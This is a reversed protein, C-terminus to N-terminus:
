LEERGAVGQWRRLLVLAVALGLLVFLKLEPEPVQQMSGVAFNSVGHPLPLPQKVGVAQGSPNRVTEDVAVFSTFATLLNHALGLEVIERRHPSSRDSRGFDSLRAIRERAWLASIGEHDADDGTEAVPFTRRYGGAGNTGSVTIEGHPTGRWKGFLVVPREAFLDPVASPEIDYADFGDFTVSIGTLVPSGVYSVFRSAAAEAEAPGTVIFPEGRGARALGEILYRNVSSGIGFAFVNASGLHTRVTDFVEDEASIYGDTIIVMTRSMAEGGPLRYAANMAQLLETGGGGGNADLLELARNIEAPSAALSQPSLSRADGAFLLINFRDSTRLGLLLRRVLGRATDLPFGHMSGSVDVVFIYERPPILAPELQRPPEALLLFYNETESRHLLLGTSIERGALRYRLIYDRDGAFPADGALTVRAEAEGNYTINAPHSPCSIEQIAMGASLRASLSFSARPDAGSRLYPNNVWRDVADNDGGAGSRYRPGVVTPYVFEYQGREPVLLETYRLELAVTDGPMINGIEMSFVNPRQQELLSGSKGEEKAKAFIQQAEQKEKIRAVAVQDGISMKMAHVAARTSAPFVYRGHIPVAGRNVYRQKVTVDAIIGSIEVVVETGLLPFREVPNDDATEVHFYPSLTDAPAGAVAAVTGTIISCLSLLCVRVLVYPNM